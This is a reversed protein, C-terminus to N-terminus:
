HCRNHSKTADQLWDMPIANFEDATLQWRWNGWATSPNNIRARGSLGLLDQATLITINAKSELALEMFSRTEVPRDALYGALRQKASDDVEDFWGATTNNDHTGLYTLALESHNEPKYPNDDNDDFFAFHLVLMGPLAYHNKVEVVDPTIIGLDEAVVPFAPNAKILTDFFDYTPVDQWSGHIATESGAPVEWFQVLGRFHDIRVIDYIAFLGAMREVWWRYNDAKLAEWNYVPNNWLQGTASFYDPPVGSVMTPRRDDGLKFISQNAWVDASDYSVYIPMDGFVLLGLQNCYAKLAQWQRFFFYQFIKTELIAAAHEDKLSALEAPDRDRIPSPWECWSIDPFQRELESFLAYDDLWHKQAEEFAYFDGFDALEIFKSAAQRLANLKFPRVREFDVTGQSLGEPVELEDINLYGDAALGELDILLPNGAFASSSFYPSEGAGANTPNLPLIQWFRQDAQALREAFQYAHQGLDGIGYASPLSFIPMLVGSSRNQAWATAALSPVPLNM